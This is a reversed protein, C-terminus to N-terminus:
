TFTSIVDRKSHQIEELHTTLEELADDLSQVLQEDEELSSLAQPQM